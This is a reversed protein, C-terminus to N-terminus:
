HLFARYFYILQSTQSTPTTPGPGRLRTPIWKKSHARTSVFDTAGHPAPSDGILHSYM